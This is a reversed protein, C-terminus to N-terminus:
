VVSKRDSAGSANLESQLTKVAAGRDGQRLKPHGVSAPPASPASTGGSGISLGKGLASWTNPRVVADVSTRASSQLARVASATASVYVGHVRRSAGSAMLRKQ